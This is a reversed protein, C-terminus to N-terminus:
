NQSSLDTLGAKIKIAKTSLDGKATALPKEREIYDCFRIFDEAIDKVETEKVTHNM